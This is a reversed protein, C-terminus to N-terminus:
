KLLSEFKTKYKEIINNRKLKATPTLEGGETTWDNGVLEFSKLNLPQYEVNYESVAQQVLNRLEIRNVIDESENFSVENEEAWKKFYDFDPVILASLYEQNEGIIMIHKIINFKKLKNEEKEPSVYIGAKTKFIVKKRGTIAIYGNEDITGIDGTHFWGEQDIVQKTAEENQFYGQLQTNSRSCIEGDPELKVELASIPKGVTGFRVSDFKNISFLGSVETLGYGEMVPMGAAWFVHLLHKPVAAGGCVIKKYNGGLFQRWKSYVFQDALQYNKKEEDSYEINPDYNHALKLAWNFKEKIDGELSAGFKLINDYVRELLLPVSSMMNPKIEQINEVIGGLDEAYYISVGRYLYKLFVSREFIHSLPLFSIAKDGAEIGDCYAETASPLYDIYNQHKLVVGKPNGTTGSTYLITYIDKETVGEKLSDLEGKKGSKGEEYLENINSVGDIQAFSIIKQLSPIQDKVKLLKTYLFKNSVFAIKTKTQNFIYILDNSSLTPHIPISIAGIQSIGFDVLNWEPRNGSIIGICDGKSIGEALLGQSVLNSKEIVEDIKYEIWKGGRKGAIVVQDQFNIKYRELIDFVRKM